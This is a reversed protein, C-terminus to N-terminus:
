ASGSFVALLFKILFRMNLQASTSASHRVRSGADASASSVSLPAASGKPSESGVYTRASIGPKVTDRSSGANGDVERSPTRSLPFEQLLVPM